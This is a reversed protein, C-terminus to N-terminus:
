ESYFKLTEMYKEDPPYDIKEDLKLYKKYEDSFFLMVANYKVNMESNENSVNEVSALQVPETGPLYFTTFYNKFGPKKAMYQKAIEKLAEKSPLMDEKPYVEVELKYTISSEHEYTILHKILKEEHVNKGKVCSTFLSLFLLALISAGLFIPKETIKRKKM